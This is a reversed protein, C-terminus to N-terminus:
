ASFSCPQVEQAVKEHYDAVFFGCADQMAGNPIEWHSCSASIRGDLDQKKWYSETQILHNIDLALPKMVHMCADCELMKM